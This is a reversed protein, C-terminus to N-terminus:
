AKRVIRVAAELAEQFNNIKPDTSESTAIIKCGPDQEIGIQVGGFTGVYVRALPSVFYKTARKTQSYNKVEPVNQLLLNPCGGCEVKTGNKAANFECRQCTPNPNKPTFQRTKVEFVKSPKTTMVYRLNPNVADM